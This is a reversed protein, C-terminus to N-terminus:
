LKNTIETVSKIFSHDFFGDNISQIANIINRGKCLFDTGNKLVILFTKM